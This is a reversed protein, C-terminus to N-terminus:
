NGPRRGNGLKEDSAKKREARREALVEAAVRDVEEELDRKSPREALRVLDTEILAWVDNNVSKCLWSVVFYKWGSDTSKLIATIHPAIGTGADKLLPVLDQTVPWNIDQLWVLLDPLIPNIGPYGIEIARQVSDRDFKDKPICDALDMCRYHCVSIDGALGSPMSFPETLDAILQM